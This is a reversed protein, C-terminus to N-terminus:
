VSISAFSSPFPATFALEEKTVPHVFSLKGHHLAICDKSWTKSSGYKQDGLIPSRVHALQARIQHYRGTQLEIELLFGLRSEQKTRYALVAKKGEPHSSPVIRARHEDHVLHHELVGESQSPAQEVLAYYWKAIKRERMMEQLRSLAKSTRAFLVMGSVPKDLRHIPELFVKGPKDYKRKIWNKAWDTVNEPCGPSEQTPIGGRKNIILLHNDVYIIEM